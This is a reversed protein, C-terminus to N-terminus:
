SPCGDLRLVIGLPRGANEILADQMPVSVSRTAQGVLAFVPLRGCRYWPGRERALGYPLGRRRGPSRLDYVYAGLPLEGLWGRLERMRAFAIALPIAGAHRTAWLTCASSHLKTFWQSFSNRRMHGHLRILFDSLSRDVFMAVEPRPFVCWVPGPLGRKRGVEAIWRRGEDDIALTVSPRFIPLPEDPYWCGTFDICGLPTGSVGCSCQLLTRTEATLTGTWQSTLHGITESDLPPLATVPLRDGRHDRWPAQLLPIVTDARSM